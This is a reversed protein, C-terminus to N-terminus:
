FREDTPAACGENWEATKKPNCKRPGIVLRGHKDFAVPFEQSTYLTALVSQAPQADDASVTISFQDLKFTIPADPEPSQIVEPLNPRNILAPLAPIGHVGKIKPLTVILAADDKKEKAQAAPAVTLAGLGAVGALAVVAVLRHMPSLTSRTM